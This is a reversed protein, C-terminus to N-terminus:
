QGVGFGSQVFRVHVEGLDLAEGPKTALKGLDRKPKVEFKPAAHHPDQFYLTVALSPNIGEIWFKGQDDTVAARPWFETDSPRVGARDAVIAEVEVGKLPLDDEDLLRGSIAAFRDLKLTLPQGPLKSGNIKASGALRAGEARIEVLRSGEPELGVVEFSSGQLKTASFVDSNLGHVSAGEVARGDPGVVNVQLSNGPTVRIDVTASKTGEAFDVLRYANTFRLPDNLFQDAGSPALKAKDAASLKATPYPHKGSAKLIIAGKGTPVTIRVTQDKPSYLGYLNERAPNGPQPYYQVWDAAVPRGTKSDMLRGVVAVGQTVEFSVDIPKTGETDAVDVHPVHLYPGGPETRVDLAYSPSKPLGDIRYRGDKGTTVMITTWPQGMIQGAVTVGAVPQGTTKARVVGAIPKSAELVHDFADGYLPLEFGQNLGNLVRRRNFPRATAPTPRNLVAIVARELGPAEVRLRLIRDNGIGAIQFRGEADTTWTGDRGLWAPQDCQSPAISVMNIGDWDLMGTALLKEPELGPAVLTLSGARVTAGAVPRGQGDLLRGWIPRDERVMRLTAEGKSAEGASLWAPGMGAAEAIIMAKHWPPVDGASADSLDPDLDFRFSGDAGTKAVPSPAPENTGAAEYHYHRVYINAGAKPQGVADVVKGSIPVPKGEPKPEVEAADNRALDVRGVPEPQLPPTEPSPPAFTAAAGTAVGAVLLAATAWKLRAVVMSRLLRKSFVIATASVLGAVSQGTALKTAIGVTSAIWEKPVAALGVNEFLASAAIGGSLAVGRRSLRTGLLKRARAVRGRVAGVTWGLQDAAEAHTLEELHCLVIPARLKEPLRGIEEHLVPLVESSVGLGVGNSGKLSGAQVEVQRRRAADVNAQVAIRYAVRYLWSGLSNKISWLTDAKRVLVLFTAQFADQADNADKLVGRCVAVVMPGHRRVLTEFADADRRKAFRELLQTDSFGSLSGADFLREIKRLAPGLPTGGM